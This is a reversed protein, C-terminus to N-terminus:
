DWLQLIPLTPATVTSRDPLMVLTGVPLVPGLAALGRNLELVKEVVGATAGLERWCLADVTDGERARVPFPM